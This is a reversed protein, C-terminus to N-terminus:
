GLNIWLTKINEFLGDGSIGIQSRSPQLGALRLANPWSRFRRQFTSPHARGIEAYEAMTITDRGLVQACRRLDDLLAEDPEARLTEKLEFKM